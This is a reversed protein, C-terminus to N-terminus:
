IVADGYLNALDLISFFFDWPKKQTWDWTKGDNKQALFGINTSKVQALSWISVDCNQAWCSRTAALADSAKPLSPLDSTSSRPFVKPNLWGIPWRLVMAINFWWLTYPNIM